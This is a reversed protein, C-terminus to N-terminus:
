DTIILKITKTDDGCNFKLFYMGSRFYSVDFRMRQYVSNTSGSFFIKELSGSSNYIGLESYEHKSFLEVQIYNKAPNPFVEVQIPNEDFFDSDTSNKLIPLYEFDKFLVDRITSEEAEFWDKYISAYISRFDYEYDLNKKKSVDLPIEEIEGIITPNVVTGFLISPYAAGHDSGKSDNSKIRRGFESYVFGLVEDDKEMRILDDQFAWLAQSVKKLLNAHQGVTTDSGDVQNAHTDFGGLNVIYIQTKLGGAILRAVMALRDALINEGKEPYDPSLNEAKNAANQVAELYAETAKMAENIFSLEHGYPNDPYEEEEGGTQQYQSNLNKIVISLNSGYGQCTPSGSAGVTVAIPDPYEESPYGTPFDPHLSHQHRGLWGSSIVEDADSASTVIDKSRFHSLNPNPYGTNQIIMAHENDYLNKFEAMSPHLGINDTLDLISNEPIVINSRVEVLKDYQDLPIFTNLGDNGGDLQVLILKRDQNNATLSKLFANERIVGLAQGQMILPTGLLAVSNRIFNRRRM